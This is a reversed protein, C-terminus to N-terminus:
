TVFLLICKCLHRLSCCKSHTCTTHFKTSQRLHCVNHGLCDDVCLVFVMWKGDNGGVRTFSVKM